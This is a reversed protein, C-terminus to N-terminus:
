KRQVERFEKPSLGTHKKFLKAFYNPYEFRMLYSIESVSYSTHLLYKQAQEMLYEKVLMSASKGVVAHCIRNLHVPSIALEEAFQPISKPYESSRINKQFTRFHKLTLDEVKAQEKEHLLFRFLTLFLQSFYAKLMAQKEARDAFLEDHIQVIQRIVAEFFDQKNTPFCLVQLSGLALSIAPLDQLVSEVVADSLTLIRGSVDPSYTFGHLVTPPIVLICPAYLRQPHMNTHFELHGSEIFFLQFLNVHIHPQILWDFGKSRTEILESFIYNNPLPSQNEGYLGDYQRIKKQKM